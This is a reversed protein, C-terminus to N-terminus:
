EERIFPVLLQKFMWHDFTYFLLDVHLDYDIVASSGKSPFSIKSSSRDTQGETLSECWLTLSYLTLWLACKLGPWQFIKYKGPQRNKPLLEERKEVCYPYSFNESSM